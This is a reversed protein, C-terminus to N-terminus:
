LLPTPSSPRTLNHTYVRLHVGDRVPPVTWCAEVLAIDDHPTDCEVVIQELIDIFGDLVLNGDRRTDSFHFLHWRLQLSEVNSSVHSHYRVQPVM